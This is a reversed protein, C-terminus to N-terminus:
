HCSLAPFASAALTFALGQRAAHSSVINLKLLNNNRGILCPKNTNDSKKKHLYCQPKQSNMVPRCCVRLAQDQIMYVSSYLVEKIWVHNWLSEDTSGGRQGSCIYWAWLFPAIIHPGNKQREWRAPVAANELAHKSNTHRVVSVCRLAPTGGACSTPPYMSLTVPPCTPFTLLQFLSMFLCLSFSPILSVWSCSHCVCSTGATYCSFLNCQLGAHTASM